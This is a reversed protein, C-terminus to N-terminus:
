NSKEDNPGKDLKKGYGYVGACYALFMGFAENRVAGNTVTDWILVASAVCAGLINISRASSVSSESSVIDKFIQM